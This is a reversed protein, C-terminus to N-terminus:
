SRKRRKIFYTGAVGAGSLVLLGLFLAINTNDGTKPADSTKTPTDPTTPQEPETPEEPTEPVETITVTQGDDEIDKHETVKTPEDPNSLDYLEEFTVLEKGGLESADFTFAIQVEMSESDATFTYDNEVREGNIILEANEDKIMQWGKLQYKTGIELGDLTVTDIITVDKGAEIEKKGDESTATTHISIIRETILVTQGEDDIDKHEAVKVPEDENSLDYLEEFTVLNQGGLSSANFTYEIEIKMEESDATFTYDSEVRQGDILLEANEEKLMQWGKLQYKTGKELGDLTVTDVITVEKGAVISKEGDKGTATTHISIEKEYEDTLTGLDVTVNNRSVVIEFPPILEFGKNSDCRLEEIIYTDYILAGKSDDPESTGFWIGDESTKGANTNHKHSAWDSSTSFQGNDDTVIIHSEGTTKSTIRFPVGALRQHTGAGIKVGELDGRKVQNYISTDTGTLDVIKGDETIEFEIPKAGDTLYGEPAKSEEIRYKGYPLLDASTSAVGEIDTLIKKVVENKSYLKGEVLVANDNLSIIEFEADKLTASGQGKTDSTELDRKQIKAGGRIVKDSVSFQNSGSLVAIDGDETIQTLYMGKIQEKSGNAQMYAGDLLYGDPAKTEEITLTGLPLVNKGDQTYFSDGSVKYKDSLRSVYHITGDSDKEAITKTVWTKTPESPLNDATYHGAYFKWTFEAGELSADGQPADKQTEMDIKFLEILTDTVKPTDSVNLTATKGAEVNLSYVTNDVKYGAPASLEKIYVTGAKVEVTDTNGSNDTTLTALQKTCDKDSYVGYTAGAISYLGNGETISANSSTKKLTANGVALKAWFQGIDQGEGSYIYGGCEYRGKNESAFAKAGAYVEDQIAKPIEDYSARVNDCQWGLHVSLRQWVVCQELLYVQKYNLESHSQAYQKVYELSLAVDSIQDASMRTSADARTKYGNKFNTNIDVCYATEDEVKMIGENFTSGISGDNMVKEIYGAREASETWYQTESAHVATTPLATVITAFALFGTALRKLIKKM